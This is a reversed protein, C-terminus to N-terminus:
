RESEFYGKAGVTVCEIYSLPDDTADPAYIAIGLKYSTFGVYEEEEINPDFQSLYNKCDIYNMELLNQNEFIAKVGDMLLIYKLKFDQNEYGLAIGNAFFDNTSKEGTDIDSNEETTFNIDQLIKTNIIEREMGFFLEGVHSFPIIEFKM